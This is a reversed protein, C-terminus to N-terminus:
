FVVRIKLELRDGILRYARKLDELVQDTKEYDEPLSDLLKLVAAQERGIPNGSLNLHLSIIKKLLFYAFDLAFL